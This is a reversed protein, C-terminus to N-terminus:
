MFNYSLIIVKLYKVFVSLIRYVIYQVNEYQSVRFKLLNKKYILEQLGKNGFIFVNIILELQYGFM